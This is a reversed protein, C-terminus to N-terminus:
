SPLVPVPRLQQTVAHAYQQYVELPTVDVYVLTTEIDAHGMLQM